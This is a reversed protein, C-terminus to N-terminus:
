YTENQNNQSICKNYNNVIYDLKVISINKTAVTMHTQFKNKFTKIFKEAVISKEENHKSYMIIVIDQLRSRM